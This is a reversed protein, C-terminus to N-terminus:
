VAGFIFPCFHFLDFMTDSGTKAWDGANDFAFLTVVSFCKFHRKNTM